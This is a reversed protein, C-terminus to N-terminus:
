DNSTRMSKLGGFQEFLALHARKSFGDERTEYDTIWDILMALNDDQAQKSSYKHPEWPRQKANSVCQAIPLNMFVMENAQDSVLEILDTYCGEIVWSDNAACFSDILALSESVPARQPPTSAQWAISDLDFHAAKHREALQRALTTKGSGSNGFILVKKLRGGRRRNHIPTKFVSGQYTWNGM